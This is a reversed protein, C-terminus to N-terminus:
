EADKYFFYDATYPVFAKAGVNALQSCGDTPALGGATNLRQIFTVATLTDGGTPGEQVGAMPLTLWAIADEAVFDPDSAHTAATAGGGWVISSDRSHQWTARIKGGEDPNPSFFHTIVQKDADTFLTAEPTFLLWAFGSTDPCQTAPTTPNPCPLCTYNQTGDAHGVLFAINGEPVQLKTPVPPPTVEAAHALQPLSVTVAVALATACTRLLTRHRPQHKLATYNKM